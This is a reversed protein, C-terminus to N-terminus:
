PITVQDPDALKLAKFKKQNDENVKEHFEFAGGTIHERGFEDTICEVEDTDQVSLKAVQKMARYVEINQLDEGTASQLDVKLAIKNYRGRTHLTSIFQESSDRAGRQSWDSWNEFIKVARLKSTNGSLNQEREEEPMQQYKELITLDEYFNNARPDTPDQGEVKEGLENIRSAFTEKWATLEDQLDLVMEELEDNRQELREIKQKASEDHDPQGGAAIDMVDRDHQSLGDTDREADM